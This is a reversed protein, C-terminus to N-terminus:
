RVPGGFRNLVRVQRDHQEGAAYANAHSLFTTACLPCSTKRKRIRAWPACEMSSYTALSYSTKAGARKTLLRTLWSRATPNRTKLAARTVNPRQHQANGTRKPQCVARANTHNQVIRSSPLPM